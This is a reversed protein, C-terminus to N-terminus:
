KESDGSSSKEKDSNQKKDLMGSIWSALVFPSLLIATVVTAVFWILGVIGKIFIIFFKSM